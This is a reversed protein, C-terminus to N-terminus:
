TEEAVLAEVGSRAGRGLLRDLGEVFGRSRARAWVDGRARLARFAVSRRPEVLRGSRVADELARPIAARALAGDAGGRDDGPALKGVLALASLAVLAGDEDKREQLAELHRELLSRGATGARALDLVLERSVHGQAARLRLELSPAHAPSRAVEAPLADM